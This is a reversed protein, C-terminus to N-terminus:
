NVLKKESDKWVTALQKSLWIGSPPKVKLFQIYGNNLVSMDNLNQKM